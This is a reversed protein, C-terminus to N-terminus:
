SNFISIPEGEFLNRRTQSQKSCKGLRLVKAFVNGKITPIVDHEHVVDLFEFGTSKSPIRFRFHFSGTGALPFHRLIDAFTPLKQQAPIRVNFANPHSSSDGDDNQVHYFCWLRRQGGSM